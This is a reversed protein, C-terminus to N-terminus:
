KEKVWNVWCALVSVSTGAASAAIGANVVTIANTVQPSQSPFEYATFFTTMLNNHLFGTTLMFLPLWPPSDSSPSSLEQFVASSPSLCASMNDSSGWWSVWAYLVSDSTSSTTVNRLQLNPQITTILAIMLITLIMLIRNNPVFCKTTQLKTWSSWCENNCYTKGRRLVFCVQIQHQTWNWSLLPLFLFTKKWILNKAVKQTKKPVTHIINNYFCIWSTETTFCQYFCRMWIKILIKFFEFM